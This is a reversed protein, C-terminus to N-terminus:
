KNGKQSYGNYCPILHYQPNQSANRQDNTVFMKKFAYMDDIYKRKHATQDSRKVMKKIPSTLYKHQTTLKGQKCHVYM